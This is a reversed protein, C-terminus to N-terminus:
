FGPLFYRDDATSKGFYTEAPPELFTPPLSRSRVAASAAGDRDETSGPPDLVVRCVAGVADALILRDEDMLEDRLACDFLADEFEM